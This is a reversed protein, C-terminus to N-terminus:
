NNPVKLLKNRINSDRQTSSITIVVLNDAKQCLFSFIFCLFFGNEVKGEHEGYFAVFIKLLNLTM